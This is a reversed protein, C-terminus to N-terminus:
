KVVMIKQTYIKGQSVLRLLYLGSQEGLDIEQRFGGEFQCRRVERDGFYVTLESPGEEEPFFSVIAKGSSPNPYASLEPAVPEEADESHSVRTSPSAITLMDTAGFGGQLSGIRARVRVYYVGSPLAPLVLTNTTISFSDALVTAASDRYFAFTYHSAGNVALAIASGSPPLTSNRQVPILRTAGVTSFGRYNVMCAPGYVGHVRVTGTHQRWPRVRVYYAGFPLAPLDTGINLFGRPVAVSDALSTCAEDRYLAFTYRNAYAFAIATIDQASSVPMGCFTNTLRSSGMPERLTNITCFPSWPSAQPGIHAKVRIRYSQGSSIGPLSGLVLARDSADQSTKSAALSPGLYVEFDYRNAGVVELPRIVESVRWVTGCGSLVPAPVSAPEPMVTLMCPSGWPGSLGGIQASAQIYYATGWQLAPTVEILKLKRLTDGVYTAVLNALGADSYIRFRYSTAGAVANCRPEQYLSRTLLTGCGVMQTTGIAVSEGRVNFSFSPSGCDNTRLTVSASDAGAALPSFAIRLSLSDGPALYLPVSDLVSFAANDTYISDVSLTDMGTNSIPYGFVQAGAGHLVRGLDVDGSAQLSPCQANPIVRVSLSDAVSLGQRDTASVVIRYSAQSQMNLVRNTLLYGNEIRFAGNDPVSDPLSFAHADGSDPDEARLLGVVTGIPMHEQVSDADLWVGAPPENADRVHVSFDRDLRLGARDAVSVRISYTPRSEFDPASGALLQNGIIRFHGGDAISDILSFTHSDFLNPDQVAFVGVPSDLPHGENITDNSLVLASPAANPLDVMLMDTAGFQGQLAGIRARARVHYVGPPLSSLPVTGSASQLSDALLTAGADRYFAITYASAGTVPMASVSGTTLRTSNRFTFLLRTNPVATFNRYDISCAAGYTGSIWVNNTHLRSPCVRVYYVGVPLSPFHTGIMFVNRGLRVSDVLNTCAPDSYLAFTYRNAHLATSATIEHTSSVVANCSAGTLAASGLPEAVVGIACATSWASSLGGISARVRVRYSRGGAVAALNGMLLERDGNSASAKTALLVTQNSNYVEFEYRDAGQISSARIVESGRVIANCLLLAPAPVSTPEPMVAVGCAASPLGVVGNLKVAVSAYYTAGWQLPPSINSLVARPGGEYTGLLQSMGADAYISFIYSASGAVEACGIEQYLSIPQGVGCGVMSTVPVEVSEGTARFSLLPQACDDSSVTVLASDMGVSSPSFSLSFPLSDGSSLLLPYPHASLSFRGNDSAIGRIILPDPGENRVMYAFSSAASGYLLKGFDAPGVVFGANSCGETNPLVSVAIQKTFTLGGSDVALVEINYVSKQAIDLVTDTLLMGGQISFAQNDEVTDTLSLAHTDHLDPDEVHFAGVATGAPLREKV